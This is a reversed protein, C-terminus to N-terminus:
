RPRCLKGTDFARSIPVQATVNQLVTDRSEFTIVQQAFPDLGLALITILAGLSATLATAKTTWLLQLAGWPGRSASEFVDLDYLPRPRSQYYLWKAQSICEAVPLLLLSKSATAIVSVVTNPRVTSHWSDLRKGNIIALVIVIAVMCVISLIACILEFTWWRFLFFSHRNFGQTRGDKVDPPFHEAEPSNSVSFENSIPNKPTPDDNEHFKSYSSDQNMGPPLAGYQTENNFPSM